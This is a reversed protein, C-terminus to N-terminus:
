KRKKSSTIHHLLTYVVYLQLTGLQQLMFCDDDLTFPSLGKTTTSQLTSQQSFSFLQNLLKFTRRLVHCTYKKTIIIIRSDILASLRKQKHIM